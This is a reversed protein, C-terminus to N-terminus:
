RALRFIRALDSFYLTGDPGNTVDLRCDHAIVEVWAVDDLAPGTLRVRRLAGTTFSCFFLDGAYEPFLSGTSFALGSIGLREEASDWLPDELGTIGAPGGEVAPYGYDRGPQVLNLEDFGEPGNDTAYLRGSSPHFAFGFVNRFGVAYAPYEGYPNDGPVTGDRNIRLIKGYLTHPDPVLSRRVMEGLSVYLKGDPGFGIRGGNHDGNYFRTQNIPLDGLILTSETARGDRETFRLLRNRVPRNEADAESYFVYVWHNQPFEPDLALGLAGQEVGKTTPLTVFPEAQLEGAASAIRVKGALVENFFLRGDPAFQLASPFSVGGVFLDVRPPRPPRPIDDREGQREATLLQPQPGRSYLLRVPTTDSPTGPVPEVRYLRGLLPVTSTRVLVPGVIRPVIQARPNPLDLVQREWGNVRSAFALHEGWQGGGLTYAYLAGREAYVREGARRSAQIGGVVQFFAANTRKEQIALQYYTALGGLPIVVVGIAVLGLGGRLVLRGAPAPRAAVGGIWRWTRLFAVAIAAFCIPLLPAVYRAKPVSSEFRGNVVPLLLLFSVIGFFVLGDRKRSLAEVGVAVLMLLVLGLRADFPGALAGSEALTGSLSDALLWLTQRLREVYVSATLIEGGTYGAQVTGGAALGAFGSWVNAVLLNAAGLLAAVVGLAPWPGLLWRPRAVAVGVAIGPLLLAAVPHTQLGLGLAFGSVVLLRPRNAPVAPHAAWLGFTTLLPTLCNSWAIHSNVVIHAPSLALLLGTLVGAVTRQGALSKGLLYAPVVTLTGLVAILLRPTYLSPGGIAFAAALLYNWLAGIYPDRNTLPFAEGRAIRLGIVAEATEDTFRPIDWLYPARAIAAVVLLGVVALV